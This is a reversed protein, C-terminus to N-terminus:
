ILKPTDNFNVQHAQEQSLALVKLSQTQYEDYSQSSHSDKLLQLQLVYSVHKSVLKISQFLMNSAAGIM